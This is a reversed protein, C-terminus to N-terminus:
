VNYTISEHGQTKQVSTTREFGNTVEAVEKLRFQQWEFGSALLVERIAEPKILESLLTIESEYRDRLSGVPTRVNQSTVQSSVQNMPIEFEILKKPDVLIQIEPRLYGRTEVGSVEPLSIVRNKFALAYAQLEARQQTNLIDAHKHYIAIDIIAKESSKFQSYVPEESERPLEVSDVAEKVEQVKESLVSGADFTIRFSASSFSASSSIEDIGSLGKLKEEVPKVIFLEVDAASAGP